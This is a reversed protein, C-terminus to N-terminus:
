RASKSPGVRYLYLKGIQEMAGASYTPAAVVFGTFTKSVLSAAADGFLAREQNEGANTWAPATALGRPGGLYLSVKGSQVRNNEKQKSGILLDEYGDRNIDGLATVSTGYKADILDEGSASWNFKKSLGFASGPFLFAKGADTHGPTDQFYAGVALDRFRDGNADLTTMTLGFAAGGQNEGSSMWVPFESPGRSSGLYLFVKGLLRPAAVLIDAYGDQNMDGASAVKLGYGSGAAHDGLSTWAPKDSPGKPGGMYLYAKGVSREKENFGSAGILLDNYGDGNVDGAGAVSTGFFAGGQGDGSSTWAPQNALGAPGGLYVYVRGTFAGKEGARYNSAGIVADAFQDGNLDVLAISAGFYAGELNEGSSSWAPTDSLGKATGLYLYVKGADARGTNYANAAVLLDPFGDGNVDGTALASGFHSFVANEGTTSWILEVPPLPLPEPGTKGLSCGSLASFLALLFAAM